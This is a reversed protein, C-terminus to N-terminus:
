SRCHSSLSFSPLTLSKSGVLEFLRAVLSESVEAAGSDRCVCDNETDQEMNSVAYSGGENKAAEIIALRWFEIGVHGSFRDLNTSSRSFPSFLSLSVQSSSM